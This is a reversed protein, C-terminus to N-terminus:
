IRAPLRKIVGFNGPIALIQPLGQSSGKQFNNM